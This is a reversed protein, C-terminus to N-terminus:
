NSLTGTAPMVNFLCVLFVSVRLAAFSFNFPLHYLGGGM